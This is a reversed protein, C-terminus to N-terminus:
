AETEYKELTPFVWCFLPLVSLIVIHCLTFTNFHPSFEFDAVCQTTFRCLRSRWPFTRIGCPFEIRLPTEIGISREGLKHVRTWSASRGEARFGCIDLKRGVKLIRSSEREALESASPTRWALTRMPYLVWPFSKLVETRTLNEDISWRWTVRTRM